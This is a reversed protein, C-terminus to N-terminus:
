PYRREGPRVAPDAIAAPQEKGEWRARVLAASIVWGAAEAFRWLSADTVDLGYAGYFGIDVGPDGGPSGLPLVIRNFVATAVLLFIVEARSPGTKLLAALAAVLLPATYAAFVMIKTGGVTMLAIVGILWALLPIRDKGAARLLAAGRSPTWLMVVPLWFSLLALVINVLAGPTPPWALSMRLQSFYLTRSPSQLRYETIAGFSSTVPILVRPLVFATVTLVVTLTLLRLPRLSRERAYQLAFTASLAALPALLFEKFLLGVLSVALAALPAGRRLCAFAAFSVLCAEIDVDFPCYLPFRVAFLSSAMVVMILASTRPAAGEGRAAAYSAVLLGFGALLVVLLFIERPSAGTVICVLRALMPVAFRYAFPAGLHATGSFGETALRLYEAGDTMVRAVPTTLRLAAVLLAALTWPFARKM